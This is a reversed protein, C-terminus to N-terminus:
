LVSFDLKSVENWDLDDYLHILSFCVVLLVSIEVRVWKWCCLVSDLVVLLIICIMSGPFHSPGHTGESRCSWRWLRRVPCGEHAEWAWGHFCGLHEGLDMFGKEIKIVIIHQYPKSLQLYCCIRLNNFPYKYHMAHVSLQWRM